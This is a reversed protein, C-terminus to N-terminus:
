ASRVVIRISKFVVDVVTLVVASITWVAVATYYVAVADCCAMRILQSVSEIVFPLPLLQSSAPSFDATMRWSVFLIAFTM